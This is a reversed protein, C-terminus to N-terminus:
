LLAALNNLFSKTANFVTVAEDDTYTQKPHMTSNRWAQKVHYLLSVNASFENREDGRPMAEVKATINAIVIGWELDRSNKDVITASLRNGLRNVSHELVRMLHFVCATNRSMALCLAAEAMDYSVDAFKAYVEAGFITSPNRIYEVRNAAVCYVSSDELSDIVRERLEELDKSIVSAVIRPETADHDSAIIFRVSKAKKLALRLDLIELQEILADMHHLMHEIRTPNKYLWEPEKSAIQDLQALTSLADILAHAKLERM